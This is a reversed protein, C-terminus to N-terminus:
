NGPIHDGLVLRLDGSGLIWRNYLQNLDMIDKQVAEWSSKASVLM